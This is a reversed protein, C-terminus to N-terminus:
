LRRNLFHAIEQGHLEAWLLNQEGNRQAKMHVRSDFLEFRSNITKFSLDAPLFRFDFSDEDLGFGELAPQHALGYPNTPSCM